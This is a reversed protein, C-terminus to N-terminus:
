VLVINGGRRHVHAIACGLATLNDMVLHGSPQTLSSSGVKVVVPHAAAVARRVAEQTKPTSQEM